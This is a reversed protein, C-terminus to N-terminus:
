GVPPPVPSSRPAAPLERLGPRVEHTLRLAVVTEELPDYELPAVSVFSQGSNGSLGTIGAGLGRPASLGGATKEEGAGKTRRFTDEGSEWSPDGRLPGFSQLSAVRECAAPKKEPRFTVRVLGRDPRAVGAAGAQAGAESDAILYTFRGQDHHPGKLTLTTGARVRYSGQPKGDIEVEADLDRDTYHNGLRLSYHQGAQLVVYAGQDTSREVGEPVLVSVHHLRM